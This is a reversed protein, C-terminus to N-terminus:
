GGNREKVAMDAHASNVGLRSAVRLMGPVLVVNETLYVGVFGGFMAVVPWLSLYTPIALAGVILGYRVALFAVGIVRWVDSRGTLLSVTLAMSILSAIGLGAGYYFAGVYAGGYFYYVAAGGPIALVAIWLANRGALRWHASM